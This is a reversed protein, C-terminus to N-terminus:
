QGAGAQLRQRTRGIAEEDRSISVAGQAARAFQETYEGGADSSFQRQAQRVLQCGESAQTGAPEDPRCSAQGPTRRAVHVVFWGAGNPAELERARGQPLAFLMVLPPPAESGQQAVAIRRAEVPQPAPLRVGAEAFAQRVPVGSNIREVLRRALARARAGAGERVLDARVRDRIQQLPPVAAPVVRAVSVFAYRENPTLTEIAPEPDEPDIQFAGGLIQALEPPAQWQAGLVAGAATVPPTEVVALREARAIEEFSAGEGLRDEIRGIAADIADRLKAGEIETAIEGRVAELPRGSARNISDVRVVHWGFESRLPGVLAGQAAGFVQAAVQPNTVNAFQERSQRELPIAEANAQQAAQAFDAGGRVRGAFARAAAEEQLVVQRLTRTESGAFRAANQRYFAAIEEDTARAGAQVQDRGILAYRLVRREPVTYRDRNRAFFAAVEAESPAIGAAMAETPVVGVSGQRRELMLSAYHVAISDPVRAALGIPMQLQRQMLLDALDRRLQQETMGQARLAQEFSQRDFQGAFNQFGPINAIVMDIMRDSVILGQERGYAWLTRAVIMQNLLADFAGMALFRGIDLEPNQQRAQDLARRIAREFETSDIEEDGVEVLTDGGAGGGSPLGGMGGTGFGTVVIAALAIFLFVLMAWSSLKRRFSSIM